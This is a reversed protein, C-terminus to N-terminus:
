WFKIYNWITNAVNVIMSIIGSLFDYLQFFHNFLPDPNWQVVCVIILGFLYLLYGVFFLPLFRLATGMLNAIFTLGFSLYKYLDGLWGLNESVWSTIGYWANTLANWIQAKLSDWFGMTPPLEISPMIQGNCILVENHIEGKVNSKGILVSARVYVAQGLYANKIFAETITYNIETQWFPNPAQPNDFALINVTIQTTASRRFIVRVAPNTASHWINRFDTSSLNEPDLIDIYIESATGRGIWKSYTWSHFKLLVAVSQNLADNNIALLVEHAIDGDTTSTQTITLDWYTFNNSPHYEYALLKDGIFWIDTNWSFRIDSIWDGTKEIQIWTDYDLAYVPYAFILLWLLLFGILLFIKRM